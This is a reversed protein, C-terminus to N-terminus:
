RRRARTTTAFNKGRGKASAPALSDLFRDFWDPFSLTRVMVSSEIADVGILASAFQEVEELHAASPPLVTVILQEPALIPGVPSSRFELLLPYRGRIQRVLTERATGPQLTMTLNVVPREIARFDFLPVFWVTWDDLLQAYRRTMTRTSVGVRRAIESLTATPRERLARVIRADLPSLARRPEPHQWVAPPEIGAVGTLGRILGLTRERSDEDPSVLGFSIWDGLFEIGAVAGDLLSLRAFLESKHRPHAVRIAVWAGHWGFLAPNLWVDYRNLLGSDRWTKLRTAVRARGIRLRHAIRTANLRPDVGALNIAGGRYMERLIDLDLPEAQLPAVTVGAGLPRSRKLTGIKAGVACIDSM